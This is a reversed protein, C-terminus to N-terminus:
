NIKPICRKILFYLPNQFYTCLKSKIGDRSCLMRGTSIECDLPAFMSSIMVSALFITLLYSFETMDVQRRSGRIKGGCSVLNKKSWGVDSPSLALMIQLILLIVWCKSFTFHRYAVPPQKSPLINWLNYCFGIFWCYIRHVAGLSLYVTKM